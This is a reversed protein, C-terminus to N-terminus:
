IQNKIIIDALAYIIKRRRLGLAFNVDSPKETENNTRSAPLAVLNKM